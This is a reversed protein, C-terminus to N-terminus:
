WASYILYDNEWDFTRYIYVLNFIAYEYQWSKVIEGDTHEEDLYYPLLGFNHTRSWMKERRQLFVDVEVGDAESKGDALEKYHQHIKDHYADIIVKLNDKTMIHFESECAEVINFDYFSELGDNFDVYKGLEHLETHEKLRYPGRGEDNIIAEVEECTKGKYKERETKAIRGLRTRYGM